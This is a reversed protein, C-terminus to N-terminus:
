YTGNVILLETKYDICTTRTEIAVFILLFFLLYKVLIKIKTLVSWM